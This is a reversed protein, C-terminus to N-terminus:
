EPSKDEPSSPEEKPMLFSYDCDDRPTGWACCSHFCQWASGSPAKGTTINDILNDGSDYLSLEEKDNHLTFVFDTRFIKLCGAIAIEGKLAFCENNINCIKYGDIKQIEASNNKLKFYENIKTDTGEPNPMTEVFSLSFVADESAVIRQPFVLAVTWCLFISKILNSGSRM